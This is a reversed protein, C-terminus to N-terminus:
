RRRNQGQPHLDPPCFKLAPTMWVVTLDDEGISRTLRDHLTGDTRLIQLLDSLYPAAGDTTVMWGNVKRRTRWFTKALTPLLRTQQSVPTWWGVGFCGVSEWQAERESLKGMLYAIDVRDSLSPLSALIKRVTAMPRGHLTALLARVWVFCLLTEVDNKSMDLLLALPGQFTPLLTLSDGGILKRNRVWRSLTKALPSAILTAWVPHFDGWDPSLFRRPPAAWLLVALSLCPLWWLPKFSLAVLAVLTANFVWWRWAM